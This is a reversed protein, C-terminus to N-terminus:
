ADDMTDGFAIKLNDMAVKRHRKDVKYAVWAIVAALRYGVALPTWQLITVVVRVAVYILWEVKMNRQRAM